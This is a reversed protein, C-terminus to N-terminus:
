RGSAPRICGPGDLGDDHRGTDSRTTGRRVPVSRTPSDDYYYHRGADDDDDYSGHNYDLVRAGNYDDDNGTGGTRQLAVRRLVPLCVDCNWPDSCSHDSAEPLSVRGTSADVYVSQNAHAQAAAKGGEAFGSAHAAAIADSRNAKGRRMGLVVAAVIGVLVAYGLGQELVDRV